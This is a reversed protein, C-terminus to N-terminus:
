SARAMAAISSPMAGASHSCGTPSCRPLAMMDPVADLVRGAVIGIQLRNNIWGARFNAVSPLYIVVEVILIVVIITTILKISLGRFPGQM